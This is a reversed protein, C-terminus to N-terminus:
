AFPGGAQAKLQALRIWEGRKREMLDRVKAAEEADIEFERQTVWIEERGHERLWVAAAMAADQVDFDLTYPTGLRRWVVVWCTELPSPPSESSPVRVEFRASM